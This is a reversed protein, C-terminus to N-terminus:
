KGGERNDNGASVVMAVGHAGVLVALPVDEGRAAALLAGNVLDSDGVRMARLM